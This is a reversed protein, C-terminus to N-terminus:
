DKCATDVVVYNSSDDKNSSNNKSSSDNDASTVTFKMVKSSVGSDAVKFYYSGANAEASPTLTIVSQYNDATGAILSGAEKPTGTVTGDQNCWVASCNEGVNKALFTKVKTDRYVSTKDEETVASLDIGSTRQANFSLVSSGASIGTDPAKATMDSISFSTSSNKGNEATCQYALKTGASTNPDTVAATLLTGVPIGDIKLFEGDSLAFENADSSLIYSRVAEEPASTRYVTGTYSTPKSSDDKQLGKLTFTFQKSADARNGSVSMSVTLSGTNWMIKNEIGAAGKMSTDADNFFANLGSVKTAYSASAEAFQAGNKLSSGINGADSYIGISANDSLGESGVQITDKSGDHITIDAAQAGDHCTNGTIKVANAATVTSGKSANVGAAASDDSPNNNGSIESSDTMSLTSGNKLEVAAGVWNTCGTIKADESLSIKSNDAYIGSGNNGVCDTISSADKMSVTSNVAYIASGNLGECGAIVSDGSISMSAHSLYIGAGNSQDSSETNAGIIAVGGNLNVKAPSSESGEAYILSKTDSESASRTTLDSLDINKLTLTSGAEVSFATIDETRKLLATSGSTGRYPYGDTSSADATTIAINKKDTIKLEKAIDIRGSLVEITTKKAENVPVADIASQLSSFTQSGIKCVPLAAGWIISSGDSASGYLSDTTDNFLWELGSASSATGSSATSFQSGSNMLNSDDSYIGVSAESNLDGVRLMDASSITVDAKQAGNQCTNGTINVNGALTVKGSSYSNNEAPMIKIGGATSTSEVATIQNDTVSSSDAMSLTSGPTVAIGGASNKNSNNVTNNKISANGEMTINFSELGGNITGAYNSDDSDEVTNDSIEASDTMTFVHKAHDGFFYVASARSSASTGSNYAISSSGSMTLSSPNMTSDIAADTALTVAGLQYASCQIISSTDSMNVTSSVAYIASGAGSICQAISSDGSMSLDAFELLIGAGKGSNVDSLTNDGGAIKAGDQLKLTVRSSSSGEAFILHHTNSVQEDGELTISSLTLVTGGIVDLATCDAKRTLVANTGSAGLYPYGDEADAAATTITIDRAGEYSGVTLASTIEYDEALMEITASGDNPVADLADQLSLYPTAIGNSVIKCVYPTSKWIANSGSTESSGILAKHDVPNSDNFFAKLNTTSPTGPAVTGFASGAQATGSIQSIGVTSSASGTMDGILMTSSDYVAINAQPGDMGRTNNRITPSGSITVATQESDGIIAANESASTEDTRNDAIISSDSISIKAGSHYAIASAGSNSVNDKIWTSGSINVQSENAAYIAGGDLNARNSTITGGSVNLKANKTRLSVAGGNGGANNNISGGTMNFIGSYVCIPGAYCFAMADTQNGSGCSHIDMGSLNVTGGDQYLVAGGTKSAEAAGTLASAITCNIISGNELNLITSDGSVNFVGGAAEQTQTQSGFNQIISYYTYSSDYGSGTVATTGGTIKIASNSRALNGGDLILNDLTFDTSVTFSGESSFNLTSRDNSSTDASTITIKRSNTNHIVLESSVTIDKLITVTVDNESANAATIADSLSAYGTGNIGCVDSDSYDAYVPTIGEFIVLIPFLIAWLATKTKKWARKKMGCKGEDDKDTQLATFFIRATQKL